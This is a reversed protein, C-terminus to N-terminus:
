DLLTVQFENRQETCTIENIWAGQEDSNIFVVELSDDYQQLDEILEKITMDVHVPPSPVYKKKRRYYYQLM